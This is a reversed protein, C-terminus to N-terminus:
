WWLWHQYLGSDRHSTAAAVSLKRCQMCLDDMYRSKGPLTRKWWVNNLHFTFIKKVQQQLNEPESMVSDDGNIIPTSKWVKEFCLSRVLVGTRIPSDSLSVICERLIYEMHGLTGSGDSTSNTSYWQNVPKSCQAECHMSIGWVFIHSGHMHESMEVIIGWRRGKVM